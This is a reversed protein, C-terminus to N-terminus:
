RRSLCELLYLLWQWVADRWVAGDGLVAGTKRASIAACNPLSGRDFQAAVQFVPNEPIAACNPLHDCPNLARTIVGKAVVLAMKKSM